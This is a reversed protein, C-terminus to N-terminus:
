CGEEIAADREKQRREELLSEIIDRYMAPSHGEPPAWWDAAPAEQTTGYIAMADAFDWYCIDLLQDCVDGTAANCTCTSM